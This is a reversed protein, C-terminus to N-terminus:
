LEFKEKIIKAVTEAGVNTNNIRIYNNEKIENEKSNFRYKEVSKLLDKESWELNRKSPKNLLRNEMKNRKLREELNTELEVIYIQANNEKFIQIYKYIRNWEEEDDFDWTTTFIIGEEDSKSFEEFIRIRFEENLKRFEERSYDFINTLMEITMHNHLLKLNTIKILEQGVTMKGVAQPGTIIIFKMSEKGYFIKLMEENQKITPKKIHKKYIGNEHCPYHVIYIKKGEIEIISSIKFQSIFNKSNESLKSHTWEHNKIEGLSMGRKDDHVDKPLGKLLYQEHNGRVAILKDKNKMLEQVTEEPNPGIGIIDGCCVIKDIKIKDFEELVKNLANINSHIDTIVGIKM